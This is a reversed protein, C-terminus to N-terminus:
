GHHDRRFHAPGANLRRPHTIRHVPSIVQVRFFPGVSGVGGFYSAYMAGGSGGKTQGELPNGTLTDTLGNPVTGNLRILYYGHSRLPGVFRLSVTQTTPDYTASIPHVGRGTGYRNAPLLTYNIVDTAPGVNMPRNFTIEVVPRQDSQSRLIQTVVAGTSVASTTVVFATSATGSAALGNADKLSTGNLTLVYSGPASTFAALGTIQYTTPSLSTLQLASSLPVNNGNRSLTLAQFTFSAPNIPSALTITVTSLPSNRLTSGAITLGTVQAPAVFTFSTSVPGGTAANGALDVVGTPRVTLVYNGPTATFPALGNIQFLLSNPPDPLNATLGYTVLAPQVPVGTPIITIGTLTVPNGDRTLTVDSPLFSSDVVPKSFTVNATNISSTIKAPEPGVSVVTPATLDVSFATSLPTGTAPNGFPDQLGTTNVTLFYYGAVTTFPALGGIVVQNPQSPNPTFTLGTLTIPSGNLLLSVNSATLTAVNIPASFTVPISATATNTASPVPGLNTISPGVIHSTFSLATPTGTGVNGAPDTIGSPAVTLVYNGPASTFPALGGVLFEMTTANSSVPPNQIPFPTVTIGTLPVATGNLTLTVASALLSTVLVPKSVNVDAVYVTAAVM